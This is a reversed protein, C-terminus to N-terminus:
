APLIYENYRRGANNVRKACAWAAVTLQWVVFAWQDAATASVKTAITLEFGVALICIVFLDGMGMRSKKYQCYTQSGTMLLNFLAVALPVSSDVNPTNSLKLGAADASIMMITYVLMYGRAYALIFTFATAGALVSIVVIRFITLGSSECGEPRAICTSTPTNTATMTSTPSSADEAAVGPIDLQVLILLASPVKKLLWHANEVTAHFWEEHGRDVVSPNFFIPRSHENDSASSATRQTSWPEKAPDTGLSRANKSSKRKAKISAKAHIAKNVLGIHRPKVRKAKDRTWHRRHDATPAQNSSTGVAPGPDMHLEDRNAFSDYNDSLLSEKPEHLQELGCFSIKGALSTHYGEDQFCHVYSSIDAPSTAHNDPYFFEPFVQLWLNLPHTKIASLWGVSALLLSAVENSMIYLISFKKAM